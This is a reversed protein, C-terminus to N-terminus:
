RITIMAFLHLMQITRRCLGTKVNTVLPYTYCAVSVAEDDACVEMDMTVNNLSVQSVTMEGTTLM